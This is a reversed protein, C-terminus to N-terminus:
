RLRESQRTNCFKEEVLKERTYIGYYQEPKAILAGKLLGEGVPSPQNLPLKQLFVARSKRATYSNNAKIAGSSPLAPIRGITNGVTLIAKRRVTYRLTQAILLRM